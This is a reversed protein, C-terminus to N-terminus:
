RFLRVILEVVKWIGLLTFPIQVVMFIIVIRFIEGFMMPEDFLERM